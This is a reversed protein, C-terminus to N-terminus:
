VFGSPRRGITRAAENLFVCFHRGDCGDALSSTHERSPVGQLRHPLCCAPRRQIGLRYQACLTGIPFAPELRQRHLYQSREAVRTTDQVVHVSASNNDKRLETIQGFTRCDHHDRVRRAPQSHGVARHGRDGRGAAHRPISSGCNGTSTPAAYGSGRPPKTPVPAGQNHVIATQDRGRSPEVGHFPGRALQPM